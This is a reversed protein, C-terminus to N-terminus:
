RGESKARAIAAQLESRAKDDADTLAELEELSIDRGQARATNILSGVAAAREIIGLLLTVLALQDM